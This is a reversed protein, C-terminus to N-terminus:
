TLHTRGPHESAAISTENMNSLPLDKSYPMCSLNSAPSESNQFIVNGDLRTSICLSEDQCWWQQVLHRVVGDAGRGRVCVSWLM